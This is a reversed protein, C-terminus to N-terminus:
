HPEQMHGLLVVMGNSLQAAWAHGYSGDDQNLIVTCDCPSYVISNIPGQIDIGTHIGSSYAGSFSTRGFGQTIHFNALAWTILGSDIYPQCSRAVNNIRCEEHVHDGTAFGTHGQVGVPDGKHAESGVGPGGGKFTGSARQQLIQTLQANLRDETAAEQKQLDAAQQNLQQVASEANNQLQVEALKYSAVSDKQAAQQQQYVTLAQSKRELEDHAAQVAVKEQNTKDYLASISNKLEEVQTQVQEQHSLDESSFLRLDDPYSVTLMYLERLLTNRQTTIQSLQSELGALDQNKQDIDTQTQAITNSTDSISSQLQQIQDEAESIKNAAAQAAAQQKAAAAQAAAAQAALADKQKKLQDATLAQSQKPTPAAKKTTAALSVTPLLTILVSMLVPFFRLRM